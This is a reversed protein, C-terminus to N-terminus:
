ALLFLGAQPPAQLACASMASCCCRSRSCLWVLQLLFFAARWRGFKFRLAASFGRFSFSQSFAFQSLFSASSFCGFFFGAFFFSVFSVLFLLGLCVCLLPRCLGPQVLQSPCPRLAFRMMAHGIGASIRAVVPVALCDLPATQPGQWRRFARCVWRSAIGPPNDTCHPGVDHEGVGDGPLGVASTSTRVSGSPVTAERRMTLLLPTGLQSSATSLASIACGAQGAVFIAPNGGGSSQTEAGFFFYGDVTPHPPEPQSWPRGPESPTAERQARVITLRGGCVALLSQRFPEGRARAIGHAQVLIGPARM